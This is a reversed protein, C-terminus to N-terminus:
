ESGLDDLLNDQMLVCRLVNKDVDFVDNKSDNLLFVRNKEFFLVSLDEFLPIVVIHVCSGASDFLEEVIQVLWQDFEQPIGCLLGV